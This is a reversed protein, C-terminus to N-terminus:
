VRYQENAGRMFGEFDGVDKWRQGTRDVDCGVEELRELLRNRVRISNDLKLSERHWVLSRRLRGMRVLLTKEPAHGLALGALFLVEGHPQLSWSSDYPKARGIGKPLLESNTKVQDDTAFLIIVATAGSFVSDLLGTNVPRPSGAIEATGPFPIPKLKVSELFDALPTYAFKNTGSVVFVKKRDVAGLISLAEEVEEESLWESFNRPDMGEVIFWTRLKPDWMAGLSKARDKEEFPVDLSIRKKM